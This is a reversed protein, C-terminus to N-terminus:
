LNKGIILADRLMMDRLNWLAKLVKPNQNPPLNDNIQGDNNQTTITNVLEESFWLVPARAPNTEAPANANYSLTKDWSTIYKQESHLGEIYRFTLSYNLIHQLNSQFYIISEFYKIYAESHQVRHPRPPM